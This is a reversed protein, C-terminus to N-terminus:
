SDDLHVPQRVAFATRGGRRARRAPTTALEREQQATLQAYHGAMSAVCVLSLGSAAVYEFADIVHATGIRSAVAEGMGGAGTVVVVEDQTDPRHALASRRGHPRRRATPCTASLTTGPPARPSASGGRASRGPRCASPSCARSGTAPATRLWSAGSPRTARSSGSRTTGVCIKMGYQDSWFYPVPAFPRPADPNLLNRAVALGQEGAHTRHEIWMSAGFLPNDWRAVDGVGYVGPAAACYEDCVLGDAVPLGSLELWGTNPVSGIALLVDDAEVTTGDALELGGDHVQTVGVGTRVDVGRERHAQTLVQGVEAGVAHALPVPAPEVVTVECGLGRAM